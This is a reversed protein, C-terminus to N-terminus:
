SRTRASARRHARRRPRHDPRRAPDHQRAARRDVVDRRPRSAARGAAPRRHRADLASFCDDFLYIARGGVLARAIALRQRQGGSVNTGGQDIRRRSGGPMAAVFDRAQAIELAQWLEEDTADPKGFRLNDAVTGSFLYRSSRCWGSARGCRRGPELDRVDVGDVLM